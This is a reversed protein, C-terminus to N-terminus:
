DRGWATFPTCAYGLGKPVLQIIVEEQLLGGFLTFLLEIFVLVVPALLLWKLILAPKLRLKGGQVRRRTSLFVLLCSWAPVCLWAIVWVTGQFVHLQTVFPVLCNVLDSLGFPHLNDIREFAEIVFGNILSFRGRIILIAALAWPPIKIGFVLGREILM